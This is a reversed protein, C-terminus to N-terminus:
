ALCMQKEQKVQKKLIGSTCGQPKDRTLFEDRRTGKEIAIDCQHVFFFVPQQSSFNYSKEKKGEVIVHDIDNLMHPCCMCESMKRM